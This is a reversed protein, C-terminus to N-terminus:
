AGAGLWFVVNVIFGSPLDADSNDTSACFQLDITGAKTGRDINNNRVFWSPGGVTNAGFIANTPGTVTPLLGFFHKYASPLTYTYRGAAGQKAATAGSATLQTQSSIAGAAGITMEHVIITGGKFKIIGLLPQPLRKNGFNAM